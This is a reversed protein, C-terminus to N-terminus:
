LRDLTSTEFIKQDLALTRIADVLPTLGNLKLNLKNKHEGSKEVVLRKFFGLPTQHLVATEAMDRLFSRRQNLGESICEIHRALFRQGYIPRFDFFIFTQLIEEGPLRISLGTDSTNRGSGTPSAGSRISPWSGAKAAPFGADELGSVVKEALNLFYSQVEEEREPPVDAFIIANDQDTRLRRNAADKVAWPSGPM